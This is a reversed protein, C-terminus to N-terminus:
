KKWAFYPAKHIVLGDQKLKRLMSRVSCPNMRIRKAIEKVSIAHNKYKKLLKSIPHDERGVTSIRKKFQGKNFEKRTIM